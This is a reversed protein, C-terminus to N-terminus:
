YQMKIKRKNKEKNSTDNLFNKIRTKEESSIPELIDDIDEKKIEEKCIYSSSYLSDICYCTDESEQYVIYQRNKVKIKTWSLKQLKIIHSTNTLLKKLEEENPKIIRYIQKDKKIKIIKKNLIQNQYIEIAKYEKNNIDVIFYYLRKKTNKDAFVIIDYKNPKDLYEDIFKKDNSLSQKNKFYMSQSLSELIIKYDEDLVKDKVSLINDITTQCLNNKVVRDSSSNLYKQKYLIYSKKDCKTSVPFIYVQNDEIKWIIYPRSLKKDDESININSSLNNLFVIHGPELSNGNKIFSNYETEIYSSYKYHNEILKKYKKYKNNESLNTNENIIRYAENIKGQQLYIKILLLNDNINHKFYIEEAEIPKYCYCYLYCLDKYIEDPINSNEVSKLIKYAQNVKNTNILVEVLYHIIDYDVGYGYSIYEDLLKFFTKYNKNRYAQSLKIKIYKM